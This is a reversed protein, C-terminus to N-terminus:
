GGMSISLHRELAHLEGFRPGPEFVSAAGSGKQVLVEHLALLDLANASAVPCSAEPHRSEGLALRDRGAALAAEVLASREGRGQARGVAECVAAYAELVPRIQAIWFEQWPAGARTVRVDGGSDVLWGRARQHELVLALRSARAEGAVPFYELALLDLWDGARGPLEDSTGGERLALALVAPWVLAPALSARYYDLRDRVDAGIAFYTGRPSNRRQVLGAVVLVAAAGAPRSQAIARELAPDLSVGLLELMRATEIVRECFAAERM